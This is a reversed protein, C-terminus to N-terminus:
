LNKQSLILDLTWTHRLTAGVKVKREEVRSAVRSSEDIMMEIYLRSGM